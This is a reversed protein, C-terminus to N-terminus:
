KKHSYENKDLRRYSNCVRIGDRSCFHCSRRDSAGGVNRSGPIYGDGNCSSHQFLPRKRIGPLVKCARHETNYSGLCFCAMVM